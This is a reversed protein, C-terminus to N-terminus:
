QRIYTIIWSFAPLTVTNRGDLSLPLEDRDDPLKGCPCVSLRTTKRHLEPDVWEPVIVTIHGDRRFNHSAVGRVVFGRFGTKRRRRDWASEEVGPWGEAYAPGDQLLAAM